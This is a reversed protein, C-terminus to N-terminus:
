AVEGYVKLTIEEHKVITCLIGGFTLGKKLVNEFAYNNKCLTIKYAIQM